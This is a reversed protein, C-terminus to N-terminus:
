MREAIYFMQGNNSRILFVKDGSKLERHKYGEGDKELQCATGLILMEEELTPLDDVTVTLPSVSKVTGFIFNGTVVNNRHQAILGALKEGAM